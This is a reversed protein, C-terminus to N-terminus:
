VGLASAIALMQTQKMVVAIAEGRHVQYGLQEARSIFDGLRSLAIDHRAAAIQADDTGYQQTLDVDAYGTRLQQAFRRAIVTEATAQRNLSEGFKAYTELQEILHTAHSARIGRNLTEIRGYYAYADSPIELRSLRGAEVDSLVRIMRDREAIQEELKRTSNVDNM